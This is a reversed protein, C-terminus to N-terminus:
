GRHTAEVLRFFRAAARLLLAPLSDLERLM